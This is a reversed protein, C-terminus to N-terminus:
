NKRPTDAKGFHPTEEGKLYILDNKYDGKPDTLIKATEVKVLLKELFFGTEFFQRHTGPLMEKYLQLGVANNHLDMKTQLPENPFLEEHLDTMRKAFHLSKQPSSIKSCYMTILCTWLAHRFANGVGDTSNTKPFHKKALMFSKVTAYFGMLAFLPHPLILKLLRVIKPFTLTRLTNILILITKKM